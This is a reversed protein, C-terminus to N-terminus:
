VSTKFGRIIQNILRDNDISLIEIILPNSICIFELILTLTRVDWSNMAQM